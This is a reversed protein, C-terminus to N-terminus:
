RWFTQHKFMLVTLWVLSYAGSALLGYRVPKGISKRVIEIAPAAVLLVLVLIGLFREFQEWAAWHSRVQTGVVITAVCAQLIIPWLVQSEVQERETLVKIESM